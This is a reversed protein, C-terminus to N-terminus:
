PDLNRKFFGGGGSGGRGPGYGFGYDGGSSYPPYGGMGDDGLHFNEDPEYGPPRDFFNQLWEMAEADEPLLDSPPVGAAGEPSGLSAGSDDEDLMPADVTRLPGYLPIRRQGDPDTPDDGIYAVLPQSDELPAPRVRRDRPNYGPPNDWTMTQGPYEAM